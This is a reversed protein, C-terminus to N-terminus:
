GRDYPDTGNKTIFNAIAHAASFPIYHASHYTKTQVNAYKAMLMNACKETIILDCDSEKNIIQLDEFIPKTSKWGNKTSQKISQILVIETNGEWVSLYAGNLSGDKNVKLFYEKMAKHNLKSNTM